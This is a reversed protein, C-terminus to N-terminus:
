LERTLHYHEQRRIQTLRQESDLSYWSRFDQRWDNGNGLYEWKQGTPLLGEQSGYVEIDANDSNRISANEDDGEYTGGDRAGSLQRRVRPRIQIHPNPLSARLRLVAVTRINSITSEPLELIVSISKDYLYESYTLTIVLREMRPLNCIANRFLGQMESRLCRFLVDGEMGNPTYAMWEAGSDTRREAYLMGMELDKLHSLTERYLELDIRLEAAIEAESPARDYKASLKRIACEIAPASIIWPTSNHTSTAEGPLSGPGEEAQPFRRPFFPGKRPRGSFSSVESGKAGGERGGETYSEEIESDELYRLAQRYGTLDMRLELAIETETPATGFRSALTQIARNIEFNSIMWAPTSQRPDVAGTLLRDRKMNDEM